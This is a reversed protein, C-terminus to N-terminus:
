GPVWLNIVWPKGRLTQATVEVGDLGVARFTAPVPRHPRDYVDCGTLGGLLPVLWLVAASFPRGM